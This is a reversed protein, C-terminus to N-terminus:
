KQHAGCWVTTRGGIQDRVLSTSFSDAVCTQHPCPGLGERREPDLVGTHSGGMALMPPLRSRMTTVLREVEDSDLENAPRHPSIGSRFLFEDVLMNGLGSVVSQDLLVTKIPTRRRHLRSALDAADIEFLDPGLRSLDPELTFRSWRRPDNVVLQGGGSASSFVLRLREWEPKWQQSSYALTEIPAVGDVALRGAMGFHIGLRLPQESGDPAAFDLWILKGRRGSGTVVLGPLVSRIEAAQPQRDDIDVSEVVRGVVREAGVRYLEAELGEPM